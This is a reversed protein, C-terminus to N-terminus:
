PLFPLDVAPGNYGNLIKLDLLPSLLPQVLDVTALALFSIQWVGFLEVGIVKDCVLGVFLLIYSIIAGINYM